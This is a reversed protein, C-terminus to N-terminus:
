IKNRKMRNVVGLLWSTALWLPVSIGYILPHFMAVVGQDFSDTDTVSMLAWIAFPTAVMAWTRSVVFVAAVLKDFCWLLPSMTAVTQADSGPAAGEPAPAGEPGDDFDLGGRIYRTM